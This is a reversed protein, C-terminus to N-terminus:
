NMAIETTIVIRNVTFKKAAKETIIIMATASEVISMANEEKAVTM